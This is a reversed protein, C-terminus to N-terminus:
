RAPLREPPMPRVGARVCQALGVGFGIGHSLHIAPFIAWLRPIVALGRRSGLRISEVFIAAAYVFLVSGLVVAADGHVASLLALSFLTLTFLLPIIPRVSLLKRRRLLTRARGRGYAFYQRILGGLSDRPYYFAVVERSLYIRGGAELIRQNLEADENTVANADYLGALEFAERRFAGNWVTDVFGERTVDRYAAGGVGLPSALAASVARQFMGRPRPRQAGGANFAGTQRLVRVSTSVHNVAYEAHADMRIIVDGRSHRIGLNMAAAQIRRPNHLLQIRPDLASLARVIARTRDTSGGDVVLIEILDPCYDQDMATRLVAEIHSEEQYCPIIISCWPRDVLPPLAVGRSPAQEKKFM